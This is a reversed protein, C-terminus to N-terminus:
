PLPLLYLADDQLSTVALHRRRSDVAVGAPSTVGTLVPTLAGSAGRHWVARADWSSILLSGDALRHLGDVRGAPLTAITEQAGTGVVRVLRAGGFTTFVAGGDDVVIGDPRDLALGRAVRRREGSPLVRWIADMDSATDVPLQGRDPGTDTVWLSGDAAFDVDNMLVGPLPLEGLPRGTARDFLRVAGVDAVALTDGHIALGKPADLTAGKAGGAIWRLAVVRGDPAVRSIFGNGDRATANWAVNSVLFDDAAADYVVNEPGDFGAHAVTTVRSSAPTLQVAPHCAVGAAALACVALGARWRGSPRAENWRGSM